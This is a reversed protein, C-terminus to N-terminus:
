RERSAALGARAVLGLSPIVTTLSGLSITETGAAALYRIWPGNGDFSQSASALGVLSHILDQIAPRNSSLAGDPVERQAHCVGVAMGNVVGGVAAISREDIGIVKGGISGTRIEVHPMVEGDAVDVAERKELTTPEGM